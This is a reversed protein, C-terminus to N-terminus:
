RQCRNMRFRRPAHEQPRLMNKAHHEPELGSAAVLGRRYPRRASRPAVLFPSHPAPGRGHYKMKFEAVFAGIATEAETKTPAYMVDHLARKARPRLRRPLKHCWDRQPATEPWVDRVAPWFGLAGDGVAVAVTPAQMGRRRLDRLVSWWSEASERYGGRAGGAGEDRGSAGRDAGAHVAPRRGAPHQLPDRGGVRLRLRVGVPGPAPVGRVGGGLEGDSAHHEDREAGGGGRGAAGAASGPLRGDVAGASVSDASGRGGEAFSAHVAASDSEHVAGSAM